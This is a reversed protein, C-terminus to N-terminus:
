SIPLPTQRTNTYLCSSSGFAVSLLVSALLASSALVTYIHIHTNMSPFNSELEHINQVM